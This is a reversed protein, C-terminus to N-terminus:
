FTIFAKTQVGDLFYVALYYVNGRSLGSLEGVREFDPGGQEWIKKGTVEYIRKGLIPRETNIIYRETRTATDTYVIITVDENEPIEPLPPVEPEPEPEPGPEETADMQLSFLRSASTINPTTRSFFESSVFYGGNGDSAIGEAQLPVIGLDYRVPAEAFITNPSFNSFQLVFPSLFSSYGLLVLTNSTADYSADTVLGIADLSAIREAMHEGPTKPFRYAVTGNSQWQKTFVVIADALVIFAEADWDSNGNNVFETQDVYAFSIVEATLNDATNLGSKAVRYIKLDTRVGVNNGFDGIYIYAEDQALAEWDVNTANGIPVTANLALTATDIEYLAAEGGSDNITYLKEDVYLLGSTESVAEPLPGIETFNFQARVLTGLCLFLLLLYKM